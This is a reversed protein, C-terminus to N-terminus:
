TTSYPRRSPAGFGEVGYFLFSKSGRLFNKLFNKSKKCRGVIPLTCSYAALGSSSIHCLLIPRHFARNKDIEEQARARLIRQWLGESQVAAPTFTSNSIECFISEVRRSVGGALLDGVSSPSRHPRLSKWSRMGIMPFGEAIPHRLLPSGRSRPVRWGKIRKFREPEFSGFNKESRNFKYNLSPFFPPKGGGTTPWSLPGSGRFTGSPCLVLSTKRM